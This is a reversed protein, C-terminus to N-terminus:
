VKIDKFPDTSDGSSGDGGDPNDGSGSGDGSAEPEAFPDSGGSGDGGAGFDSGWSGGSSDDSSSSSSGFSDPQGAGGTEQLKQVDKDAALKSAQHAKLFDVVNLMVDQSYNKLSELLNMMPKGTEDRQTIKFLEPLYNNDAMWQRMILGKWSKQLNELYGASQGAFEEALLDSSFIHKLGADVAQEYDDFAKKQSAARTEDPKPLDIQMISLFDELLYTWFSAEDQNLLEKEDESLAPMLDGKNEQLTKLLLGVIVEDNIAIKQGLETLKTSFINSLMYVRQSFLISNQQITTAFDSKAANDVTEPSLGFHMYTQHRFQEDLTDDALPHQQNKTEFEFKTDPLSPHGDFTIEIGARQIWDTLDVVRNLGHPFYQQRARTVLHKSLEITRMPDHDRPDMKVNVSTISISSKVKAMVNSFLVMARLSTINSLDDLYSKGVGNRHYNFAIYSVYEAPIYILRTFQGQLTRSLMIRYIENNNSIQVKKGYAGRALRELLDRELIEAYLESARDIMPEIGDNTLNQRAKETLLGSLSNNSKDSVLMSDMGAGVDHVTSGTTVPNGDIDTPVFYGIHETVNGPVHVPIAAESPINMVLPRGVSNRILNMKSPVAVYPKYENKGSKYLMTQLEAPTTKKEDLKNQEPTVNVSRMAAETVLHKVCGRLKSGTLRTVAEKSVRDLLKPMKLFQYNDSIEISESIMTGLEAIKFIGDDKVLDGVYPKPDYGNNRTALFASELVVGRTGVRNTVPKSNGLLGINTLKDLTRDTYIDASQISETTVVNKQNIVQDVAAEPLIARVSSGTMFLSTRLIAPLDESLKYITDMEERLINLLKTTLTPPYRNNKTRYILESKIMDKPSLISSIVIQAALEIDPFLRFINENDEVRSMISKSIQTVGTNLLGSAREMDTTRTDTRNQPTVLKSIVAAIDAQRVILSAPRETGPRNVMERLGALFESSDKAM